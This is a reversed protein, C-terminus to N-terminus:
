RVGQQAHKGIRIDFHHYAIDCVLNIICYILAMWVVYAQVMPYDRMMISDLALKGVGDWQFITEIIAAGGLLDGISLAVLTILAILISKLAYSSMIKLDSLGRSRAACVYPKELEEIVFARIQRIYKASMAIVLTMVPLVLGAINIAELGSKGPPSSLVPLIHLQLAFVYILLLAVFFNPSSNGVFCMFRSAIDFFSNRWHATAFGLPISILLTVAMSVFALICTAPLKSLLTSMVDKGTVFSIGMNGTFLGGLWTFYQEFFPRDLGLEARKLEILEPSVAVGQNEILASVSDGGAFYLLSFSLFTVGLVVPIMQFLRKLIYKKMGVNYRLM